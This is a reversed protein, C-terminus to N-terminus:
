DKSKWISMKLDSFKQWKLKETLSLNERIQPSLISPHELKLFWFYVKMCYKKTEEFSILLEFYLTNKAGVKSLRFDVLIADGMEMLCAKFILQM